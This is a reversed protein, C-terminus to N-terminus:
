QLEPELVLSGKYPELGARLFISPEPNDSFEDIIVRGDEFRMPPVVDMWDEPNSSFESAFYLKLIGNCVVPYALLMQEQGQAGEELVASGMGEFMGIGVHNPIRQTLPVVDSVVEIHMNSSTVTFDAIRLLAAGEPIPMNPDIDLLFAAEHMGNTDPGYKATWAMYNDKVVPEAYALYAPLAPSFTATITVASDPMFFAPCGTDFRMDVREGSANTVCIDRMAWAWGPDPWVSFSVSRGEAAESVSLEVTGHEVDVSVQYMQVDEEVKTVTLVGPIADGVNESESYDEFIDVYCIEDKLLVVEFESDSEFKGPRIAKPGKEIGMLAVGLNDYPNMGWGNLNDFSFSYVGNTPATFSWLGCASITNDGIELGPCDCHSAAISVNVPSDPMTFLLRKLDPDSDYPVIVEFPVAKGDGTKVSVSSLNWGTKPWIYFAIEAGAAARPCEYDARQENVTFGEDGISGSMNVTLGHPKGFTASVMVNTGPMRFYWSGRGYDLSYSWQVPVSLGTADVINWAGVEYGKRSVSSLLVREGEMAEDIGNGSENCVEVRGNAMSDDVSISHIACKNVVISAEIPESLNAYVDLTYEIGAELQAVFDFYHNKDGDYDCGICYDSEDCLEAEWWSQFTSRFRYWGDEPPVFTYYDRGAEFLVPNDGVVLDYSREFTASFHVDGEPMYFSVRTGDENCDFYLDCWEDCDYDYYEATVNELVWGPDPIITIRVFYDYPAYSLGAVITGHEPQEVDISYIDVDNTKEITLNCPGNESQYALVYYTVGEVLSLEFGIEDDDSGGVSGGMQEGMYDCIDIEWYGETRFRFAYVGDEPATFVFIGSEDITIDTDAALAQREANAVVPAICVSAGPMVFSVKFDWPSEETMSCQVLEGDGTVVAFSEITKGPCVCTCYVSVTSNSRAEYDDSDSGDVEISEWFAFEDTSMVGIGYKRMSVTSIMANRSAMTLSYADGIKTLQGYDAFFDVDSDESSLGMDVSENEGAYFVDCYAIGTAYAKANSTPYEAVPVGFDISVGYNASVSYARRGRNGSNWLRTTNSFSKEAFYYTNSVCAAEEGRGIPHTSSSKDLCDILTTEAGVDSWGNFTGVFTGGSVKGDFLCGRLTTAAAEGHGIFGGCHSGSTTVSAYVACNEIENTGGKVAGVLGSCHQGGNVNGFVELNRINAGEVVSFPAVYAGSGSLGVSLYHGNGDFTGSFPCGESGLKNTVSINDADLRFCCGTTSFGGAVARCLTDWANCSRIVWPNGEVGAGGDLWYMAANCYYCHTYGEDDVYDAVHHDCPRIDIWRSASLADNVRTGRSSFNYYGGRNEVVELGDAITLSGGNENSIVRKKYSQARLAGEGRIDLTKGAPGLVIAPYDDALVYNWAELTITADGQCTIGSWVGCSASINLNSITVSAGDAILILTSAGGTGALTDGDYIAVEGESGDLVIMAPPLVSSVSVSVDEDPMIFKDGGIEQSVGAGKTLTYSHRLKTQRTTGLLVAGGEKCYYAGGYEVVSEGVFTLGSVDYRVSKAAAIYVDDGLAISFMRNGRKDASWIRNGDEMKDAAMYCVKSVTVDGTGRGIPANSGSLDLCDVLTIRDMPDDWGCLTGATQAGSITGAFVCGRLTTTVPREFGGGHAIIGGCHTQSSTISASVFCNEVLNTGSDMCGLLGSCHMGGNVSGAVKLKRITAGSVAAFPAVFYGTGNLNVTLTHGHGEFTGCFKRDSSGVCNTVAIDALLRVAQGFYSKGQAVGAAFLDWDAASEIAYDYYYGDRPLPNESPVLDRNNDIDWGSGLKYCLEADSVRTYTGRGDIKKGRWLGKGDVRSYCNKVTGHCGVRAIRDLDSPHGEFTGAFLCNAIYPTSADDWGVLAGANALSSSGGIIGDFRCDTMTFPASLAHGIIGGSYISETNSPFMIAVSVRCKAITVGDAFGVLGSAHYADTSSLTVTGTTRLKQITAGNVRSFPACGLSGSTLAVDLTHWAGDFTGRFPHESSGASRSVSIDTSLRVTRDAFGNWEAGDEICDCFLNWGESSSIVYPREASGDPEYGDVNGLLSSLRTSVAVVADSSPMTFSVSGCSSEVPAGNLTVGELEYGAPTLVSLTVTTGSAAYYSDGNRLVGGGLAALRGYEVKDAVLSLRSFDASVAYARSGANSGTWPTNGDTAKASGVYLVNSVSVSGNKAGRGVPHVSGSLDLCDVLTPSAIDSWGWFIGGNTANSLSGSFVCGRITVANAASNGGHGIFGGAYLQGDSTVTITAAVECDEILSTGSGVSVSLGSSHIAGCVSGAVKLHRITAADIRMFPAIAGSASELDVTLTHGAGDFTGCFRPIATTVSIDSDLRVYVNTTDFGADAAAAFANWQRADRIAYPSSSTGEGDVCSPFVDDMGQVSLRGGGAVNGGAAVGKISQVSAVNGDSGVHSVDGRAVGAAGAVIAIGFAVLGATRGIDM